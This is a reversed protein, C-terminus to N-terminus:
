IVESMEAKLETARRLLRRLVIMLIGFGLGAGLLLFAIRFEDARISSRITPGTTLLHVSAAAAMLLAAATAAIIADVWRYARGTLLEGRRAMGLLVWASALVVEVCVLGVIAAVVYVSIWEVGDVVVVQDAVAEAHDEVGLRVHAYDALDCVAFRSERGGPSETRVDHESVDPHRSEVSDFDELAQVSFGVRGLDDDHGGEVVVIVDVGHGCLSSAVREGCLKCSIGQRAIFYPVRRLRAM